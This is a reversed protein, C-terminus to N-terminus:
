ESTVGPFFYFERSLRHEFHTSQKYGQERAEYKDGVIKNVETLMATIPTNYARRSFVECITRIFWSGQTLHRWAKDGPPTAYAFLVDSSTPIKRGILSPIQNDMSQDSDQEPISRDGETAPEDHPMKEGVADVALDGLHHGGRCAQFIFIKPKGGLAPAKDAHFCRVFKEISVSYKGVGRLTGDYGHTLVVVICSDCYAHAPDEAFQKADAMMQQASRDKRTDLVNYGLKVLLQRINYEDIESGERCHNGFDYNHIIMALGKPVTFNRYVREPGTYYELDGAWMSECSNVTIQLKGDSEKIKMNITIVGTGNELNDHFSSLQAEVHTLGYCSPVVLERMDIIKNVHAPNECFRHGVTGVCRVENFEMDTLLPHPLAAVSFHIDNDDLQSVLYWAYGYAFVPEGVIDGGRRFYGTNLCQQRLTFNLNIPLRPGELDDSDSNPRFIEIVDAEIKVEQAESTDDVFLFPNEPDLLEDVHVTWHDSEPACEIFVPKVIDHHLPRALIRLVCFAVTNEPGTINMRLMAKESETGPPLLTAEFNWTEGDLTVPVNPAPQQLVSSQLWWKPLAGSFKHRM